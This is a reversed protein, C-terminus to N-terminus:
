PSQHYLGITLGPIVHDLLIRAPPVFEKLGEIMVWVFEQAFEPLDPYSGVHLNLSGGNFLFFPAAKLDQESEMLMLFIHMIKSWFSLKISLNMEGLAPALPPEDLRDLIAQIGNSFNLQGV